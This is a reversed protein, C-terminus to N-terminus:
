RIKEIIFASGKKDRQYVAATGELNSCNISIEDNEDLNLIESFSLTGDDDGTGNRDMESSRHSSGEFRLSNMSDKIRIRGQISSSGATTDDQELGIFVTIKYRGSKKVKIRTVRNNADTVQEFLDLNDNFVVGDMIEVDVGATTNLNVDNTTEINKFNQFKAARESFLQLPAWVFGTWYFFGQGTFSNINYVMTGVKTGIPLPDITNLDILNADPLKVGKTGSSDDIHLITGIAPNTTGIGVQAQGFHSLISCILLLWLLKM